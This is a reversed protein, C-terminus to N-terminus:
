STETGAAPGHIAAAIITRADDLAGFWTPHVLLAPDDNLCGCRCSAVYQGWRLTAYAPVHGEYQNSFWDRRQANSPDNM